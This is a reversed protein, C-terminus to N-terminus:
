HGRKTFREYIEAIIGLGSLLIANLINGVGFYRLIVFFTLCVSIILGTRSNTLLLSFLIFLFTFLDLFFLFVFISSNPDTFYIISILSVLLFLTIVLSPLFNKRRLVMQKRIEKHM